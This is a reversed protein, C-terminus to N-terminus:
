GNRGWMMGSMRSLPPGNVTLPNGPTSSILGDNVTPIPFVIPTPIAGLVGPVVMIVPGGVGDRFILNGTVSGNVAIGSIIFRETPGPTWIITESGIPLSDFAFNQNGLM